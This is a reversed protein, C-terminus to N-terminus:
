LKLSTRVLVIKQKRDNKVTIILIHNYGHSKKLALVRHIKDIQLGLAAYLQHM